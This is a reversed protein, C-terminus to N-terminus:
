FSNETGEEKFRNTDILKYYESENIPIINKPLNSLLYFTFLNKYKGLVNQAEAGGNLETYRRFNNYGKRHGLFYESLNAKTKFLVHVNYRPDHMVVPVKLGKLASVRFQAAGPPTIFDPRKVFFFLGKSTKVLREVNIYRSIYESRSKGDLEFAAHNASLYVNFTTKKDPHLATLGDPLTSLNVDKIITTTVSYGKLPKNIYDMGEQLFTIQTKFTPSFTTVKSNNLREILTNYRTIGCEALLSTYINSKLLEIKTGAKHVIINPQFRIGKNIDLNKPTWNTQIKVKTDTNLSPQLASIFAQEQARIVWTEFYQM